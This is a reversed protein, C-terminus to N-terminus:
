LLYLILTNNVLNCVHQSVDRVEADADLNEQDFSIHYSLCLTVIFPYDASQPETSFILIFNMHYYM